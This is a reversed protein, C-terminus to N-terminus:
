KRFRFSVFLFVVVVFAKLEIATIVTILPKSVCVLSVPWKWIYQGRLRTQICSYVFSTKDAPEVTIVAISVTSASPVLGPKWSHRILACAVFAHTNVLQQNAEKRWFLCMVFTGSHIDSTNISANRTLPLSWPSYEQFPFGCGMPERNVLVM